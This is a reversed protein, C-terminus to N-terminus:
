GHARGDDLDDFMGDIGYSPMGAVRTYKSDSAGAGMQPLVVVGPWLQHAVKEVTPLINGSIPSEPSATAATIVSIKITPDDLVRILTDRVSDQSEGPIIRCQLTARARQPLANQAHGGEIQTATCTTRLLINTEVVASLRDIAAADAPTKAASLMDAKVHALLSQPLLSRSFQITCEAPNHRDPAPFKTRIILVTPALLRQPQMRRTCNGPPM